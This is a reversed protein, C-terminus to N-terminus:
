CQRSWCTCASGASATRRPWGHRSSRHWPRASSARCTTPSARGTYRVNTPFLEPLIASQPGFTFGMLLMGLILFVLMRASGMADGDLLLGFCLGFVMMTGTVVLLTARRGYRDALIGSVPIAAAFFLVAM